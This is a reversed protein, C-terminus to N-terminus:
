DTVQELKFVVPRTGDTCCLIKTKPNKYWDSIINNGSMLACLSSYIDLWAVPCFGEPMVAGGEYFFENGVELVPCAGVKRGDVLYEEALDGYFEKKIVSIKVRM